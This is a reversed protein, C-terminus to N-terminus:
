KEQQMRSVDFCKWDERSCVTQNGHNRTIPLKKMILQRNKFNEFHWVPAASPPNTRQVNLSYCTDCDCRGLSM